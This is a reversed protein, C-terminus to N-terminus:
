ANRWSIYLSYNSKSCAYRRYWRCKYGHKRLEVSIFSREHETLLHYYDGVYMTVETLGRNANDVIEKNIRQIAYDLNSMNLRNKATENMVSADIFM